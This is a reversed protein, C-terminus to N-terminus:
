APLQARQQVASVVFLRKSKIGPLRRELSSGARVADVAVQVAEHEVLQSDLSLSFYANAQDRM